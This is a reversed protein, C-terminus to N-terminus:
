LLVGVQLLILQIEFATVLSCIVVIISTMKWSKRQSMEIYLLFWIIAAITLISFIVLCFTLWGGHLVGNYATYVM